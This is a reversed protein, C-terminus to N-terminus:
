CCELFPEPRAFIELLDHGPEEVVKGVIITEQFGALWDVMRNQRLEQWGDQTRDALWRHAQGVDQKDGYRARLENVATKRYPAKGSCQNIEFVYIPTQNRQEPGIALGSIKHPEAAM